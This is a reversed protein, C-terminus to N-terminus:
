SQEKRVACRRRIQKKGKNEQKKQNKVQRRFQAREPALENGFRIGHEKSLFLTGVKKGAMSTM